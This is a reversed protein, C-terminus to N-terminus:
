EKVLTVERQPFPISIGAADMENKIQENFDYFVDWYDDSNVWVKFSINVSSDALESVGVFPEPDNHIRQDSTAIKLLIDKAQKMSDGYGIGVTFDVRRTAEKSYNIMSSNSIIGNPIIITKNDSTTLISVFIQIEKVSGSYGAVEVYDGVKFPKFLLIMVGGAFNQLSGQLALGIAFSVAGLIAVFSTVEVGVMSLISLGLLVKLGNSFLSSLFPTLSTDINRKELVRRLNRSSIGIIWLGFLLTLIALVLKPGYAVILNWAVGAFKDVQDM